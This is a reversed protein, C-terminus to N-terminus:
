KHNDGLPIIGKSNKGEKFISHSFFIGYLFSKYGTKQFKFGSSKVKEIANKEEESFDLIPLDEENSASGM